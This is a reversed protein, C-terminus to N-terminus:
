IRNIAQSTDLAEKARIPTVPTTIPHEVMHIGEKRLGKDLHLSFELILQGLAPKHRVM